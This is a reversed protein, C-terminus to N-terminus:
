RKGADKLAIPQGDNPVLAVGDMILDFDERLSGVKSVRLEDDDSGVDMRNKREENETGGCVAVSFFFPFFSFWADLSSM